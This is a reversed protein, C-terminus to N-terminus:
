KNKLLFHLNELLFLIVSHLRKWNQVWSNHLKKECNLYDCFYNRRHCNHAPLNPDLSWMKIMENLLSPFPYSKKLISLPVRKKEKKKNNFAYSLFYLCQWWLGCIDVFHVIVEWSFDNFLLFSWSMTNSIGTRDHSLCM